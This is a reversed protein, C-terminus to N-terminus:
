RFTARVAAEVQRRVRPRASRDSRLELVRRGPGPSGGLTSLLDDESDVPIWELGYAACLARVEVDQPTGFFREVVEAMHERQAVLGHELGAFIAGGADNVVVIDLDPEPEGPGILLGGVDHLLTLDGCLLVTRQGTGLAVGSATSVTGDIGALGRNSYVISQPVTPPRWSLDVDRIVSSSGLVLPGRVTSAVLQSTRLAGPRGIEDHRTALADDLAAQARVGAQQWDTLWGAPGRGAVVALEELDEVPRERRAGPEFWAVPEPQHFATALDARALLASIQRTLTPRGFLIVQEIRAALPHSDEGLGGASGLLWPYAGVANHGFRANSSPEALLPLGLANAFAAPLPGSGHGAVVVTRSEHLESVDLDLQETLDMPNVRVPGPLMSTAKSTTKSTPQDAVDGDWAEPGADDEAPVLPERFRLNLHIPGPASERVAVGPVGAFGEVDETDFGGAALLARSVVSALHERHRRLATTRPHADAGSVEAAEAALWDPIEDPDVEPVTDGSLTQEFRVHLPFIGDQCTTQNAGTGQLEEPRDATLAVLQIGAHDAEMLAPLLNGVATGSTTVVGVPRGSALALGLATFAASREDVRVHLRIRGGREAEALAYVLPASRSGPAIVAERLGGDVLAATVTRAVQLADLAPNLTPQDDPIREM